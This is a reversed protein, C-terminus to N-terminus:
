SNFRAANPGMFHRADFVAVREDWAVTAGYGSTGFLCWDVGTVFETHDAKCGIEDGWAEPGTMNARSPYGMASGDSWIRATMDYSASMLVDSLHPSWSIRRIAYTHGKLIAVPGQKISRLDWTRIMQDVGATALVTGRYKNWDHTLVEAPAYSPPLQGGNLTAGIRPPHGHVPVLHVLHNAASSPTRLDYIRM